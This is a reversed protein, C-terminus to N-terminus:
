GLSADCAGDSAWPGAVHVSGGGQRALTADVSGSRGDANVTVVGSSSSSPLQWTMQTGDPLWSGLMLSWNGTYTGPGHFRITTMSLSYSTDSYLARLTAGYSNAQSQNYQCTTQTPRLQASVEGSVTVGRFTPDLTPSPSPVATAQATAPIGQDSLAVDWTQPTWAGNRYRLLAGGAGTAWGDSASVMRVSSLPKQTPSAVQTWHGGSDHLLLGSTTGGVAWGESASVMSVDSLGELQQFQQFTWSGNHLHALTAVGVKSGGGEGVAWGESASVLSLASVSPHSGAQVAHWAGGTFHLAVSLYSGVAWAETPSAAAISTAGFPDGASTYTPVPSWRAGDYHWLTNPGAAWGDNPALM